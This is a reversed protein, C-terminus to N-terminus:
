KLFSEFKKCISRCTEMIDSKDNPNKAAMDQYVSLLEKVTGRKLYGEVIQDLIDKRKMKMVLMIVNTKEIPALDKNVDLKMKMM